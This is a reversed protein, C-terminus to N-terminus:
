TQDNLLFIFLERPGHAGLILTKEIDATRSPGTILSVQSPLTSYKSKMKQLADGLEHVLQSSKGIVLHVPAFGFLRRGSGQASSVMISGTRAILYECGTVAVELQRIKGFDSFYSISAEDLISQMEKEACFVKSWGKQQYLESLSHALENRDSCYSFKGNSVEVLNRAFELEPIAESHGLYAEPVLSPKEPRVKLRRTSRAKADHIKQLIRQKSEQNSM